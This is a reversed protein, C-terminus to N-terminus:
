ASPDEIPLLIGASEEQWVRTFSVAGITLTEADHELTLILCPSFDSSLYPTLVHELRGQWQADQLMTWVPYEWSDEGIYLGVDRCESATIREVARQYIGEAAPRPFFNQTIRPTDLVNQTELLPRYTAKTLPFCAAALLGLAVAGSLRRDLARELVYAIIPSAMVFLPLHLRSHWPQWKLLGSFLLCALLFTAIYATVAPQGLRRYCIFYLPLAIFLLALHLPMQATDEVLNAPFIMYSAGTYSLTTRPDLPDLGLWEHLGIVASTVRERVRFRQDLGPTATIHMVINRSLNSILVPLSYLQNSYSAQEPGLPTGFTQVMRVYHPSVILLAIVGIGMLRPLARWRHRRIGLGLLWLLVPPVLVYATGKTLVTLGLATGCVLLTWRTFGLTGIRTVGYLLCMLWFALAYDNQTTMSQLVGMTLTACVVAAIVRGRVSLGWRGALAAALVLCGVMALWQVGNAFYDGGSLLQLHLIHYEAGPHQYLQRLIHTPYLAVSQNQIWHAVRSMHYTMSDWNNSPSIVGIFGSVVGIVAIGLLLLGIFLPVPAHPRPPLAPQKVLLYTGVGALVAWLLLVGTSTLAHFVSLFETTFVVFTGVLLAMSVFADDSDKLVRRLLLFWVSAAYPILLIFM